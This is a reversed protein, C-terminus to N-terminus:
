WKTVELIFAWADTRVARDHLRAEFHGQAAPGHMHEPHRHDPRHAAREGPISM